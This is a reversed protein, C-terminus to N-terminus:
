SKAAGHGNFKCPSGAPPRAGIVPSYVEAPLYLILVEARGHKDIIPSVLQTLLCVRIEEGDTMRAQAMSANSLLPHGPELAWVMGTRLPGERCMQVTGRVLQFLRYCLWLGLLPSGALWPTMVPPAFPWLLQVPEVAILGLALLWFGVCRWDRMDERLQDTFGYPRPPQYDVLLRYQRLSDVIWGEPTIQGRM